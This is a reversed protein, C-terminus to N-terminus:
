LKACPKVKLIFNIHIKQTIYNRFCYQKKNIWYNKWNRKNIMKKFLSFGSM